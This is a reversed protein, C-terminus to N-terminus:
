VRGTQYYFKTELAAYMLLFLTQPDSSNVHQFCVSFPELGFQSLLMEESPATIVVLYHSLATIINTEESM